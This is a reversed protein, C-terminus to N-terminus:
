FFSWKSFEGIEKFPTILPRAVTATPEFSPLFQFLNDDDFTGIVDILADDVMEGRNERNADGMAAQSTAAVAAAKNCSTSSAEETAGHTQLVLKRKRTATGGGRMKVAAEAAKQSQKM